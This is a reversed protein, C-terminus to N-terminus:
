YWGAGFTIWKDGSYVKICPNDPQTCFWITKDNKPNLPAMLGIKLDPLEAKLALSEPLMGTPLLGDEPIVFLTNPETGPQYGKLTNADIKEPLSPLNDIRSADIRRSDIVGILEKYIGLQELTTPKGTIRDWSITKNAEEDEDDELPDGENLTGDTDIWLDATESDKPEDMSVFCRPFPNGIRIIKYYRVTIEQGEVLAEKLEFRRDSIEVLGGSDVTRRMLDDIYVELHNRGVAYTGKELEFVFGDETKPLHRQEGKANVYTFFGDDDDVKVITFVESELMVDRVINVTGDNKLGGPVWDTEGELKVSFVGGGEKSTNIRVSGVPIDSWLLKDAQEETLILARGKQLANESVRRTGRAANELM